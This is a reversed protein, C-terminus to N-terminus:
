FAEELSFYIGNTNKGFGLDMRMNIKEKKDFVVRLGVGYSYKFQSLEFKSLKKAVDGMGLFAVAGVREWIIKRYEVQCTLYAEDRYRGFFYGRMRNAGGLAPLKFFPVNGSTSELYVQGSIIHSNGLNYYRRYDAVLRSYTFNSGWTADFFIMRLKVFSNKTPYSTNDRNDLMFFLGLGSTNGGNSGIVNNAILEINGRKDILKSTTHEFIIGAHFKKIIEVALGLEAYFRFNGISYEPEINESTNNGIGYFKAVEKNYIFKVKSIIKSDGGFHLIPMVFFTYQHNTTYYARIQVKSLKVEKKIGLRTYILAGAGVAFQTEPTYFAMPYYTYEITQINSSNQEAQAFLQLTILLFGIIFLKNLLFELNFKLM